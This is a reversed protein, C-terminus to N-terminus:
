SLILPHIISLNNESEGFKIEVYWWHDIMCCIRLPEERRKTDKGERAEAV